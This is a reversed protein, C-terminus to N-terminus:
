AQCLCPEVIEETDGESPVECDDTDSCYCPEGIPHLCGRHSVLSIIQFEIPEQDLDSILDNEQANVIEISFLLQSIHKVIYNHVHSCVMDVSANKACELFFLHAEDHISALAALNSSSSWDDDHYSQGGSSFSIFSTDCKVWHINGTLKRAHEIVSVDCADMEMNIVGEDAVVAPIPENQNAACHTVGELLLRQARLHCASLNKEAQLTVLQFGFAEDCSPTLESEQDEDLETQIGRDTLSIGFYSEPELEEFPSV